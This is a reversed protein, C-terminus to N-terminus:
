KDELGQELTNYQRKNSNLMGVFLYMLFSSFDELIIRIFFYILEM